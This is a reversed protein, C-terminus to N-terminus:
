DFHTRFISVFNMLMELMPMHFHESNFVIHFDDTTHCSRVLQNQTNVSIYIKVKIAAGKVTEM